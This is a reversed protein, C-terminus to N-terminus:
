QFYLLKSQTGYQSEIQLLKIGHKNSRLQIQQTGKTLMIARSELVQGQISYINLKAKSAPNNWRLLFKDEIPNPFVSFLEAETRVFEEVSSPTCFVQSLQAWIETDYASTAFLSGKAADGIRVVVMDLSPVVYIKQDNKGLAAFADKPATTVLDQRFRIQLGPLMFTDKGNLWWLYGYSPNITQSSNVMSNYYNIDALLTDGDWIGKNLVLLGFRALDRAKGYRVYNFWFGGMGIRNGIQTNTYQNITTGSAIELIDQLLRYPGNHYSWRTGADAKYKLCSDSLCDFEKEDLGTTMSLQHRVTILDEKSTDASTWGQGLHKSTKDLISLLKDEQAQGVLFAALSKGASAWYWFSDRTFTGFHKEYAIKGGKLIIFAKTNTTDLLTELSDLESICWNLSTPSITDWSAGTRPPFYTQASLSYSFLFIILIILRNM